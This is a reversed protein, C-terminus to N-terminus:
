LDRILAEDKGERRVLELRLGKNERGYAEEEL